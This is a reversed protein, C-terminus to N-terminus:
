TYSYIEAEFSVLRKFFYENIYHNFSNVSTASKLNDPLSNWTHPGLYSSVQIGLKTKRFPLKLKNNSSCTVVDNEVVPYFLEEFYNPCKDNQSWFINSVLIGLYGDYVNLWNLQLFEKWSLKQGKM